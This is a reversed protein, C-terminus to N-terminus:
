VRGAADMVAKKKGSDNLDNECPEYFISLPQFNSKLFVGHWKYNMRKQHM